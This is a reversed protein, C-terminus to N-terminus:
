RLRQQNRRDPSRDQLRFPVGGLEHRLTQILASGELELSHALDPSSNTRRLSSAYHHLVTARELPAAANNAHQLAIEFSARADQGASLAAALHSSSLLRSSGLRSAKEVAERAHMAAFGARGLAVNIRCLTVHAEIIDHVPHAHELSRSAFELAQQFDMQHFRLEAVALLIPAYELTDRMSDALALASEIHAAAGDLDGAVLSLRGLHRSALVQQPSQDMTAALRVAKRYHSGASAWNGVCQDVFGLAVEAEVIGPMHSAATRIELAQQYHTAAEAWQSRLVHTEGLIAHADAAWRENGEIELDLAQVLAEAARAHEGEAVWVRCLVHLSNVARLENASDRFLALSRGLHERAAEFRGGLYEQLGLASYANALTPKDGWKEAGAVALQYHDIAEQVQGLGTYGWGAVKHALLLPGTTSTAESEMRRGLDVVDRFRGQLYWALGILQQLTARVEVAEAGQAGAVEALGAECEAILEGFAGTHDLAFAIVKRARGRQLPDVSLALVQRYTSVAAPYLAVNAEAWGRGSLVELHVDQEALERHRELIDAAHRYHALSAPYASLEAARRGALRNYHLARARGAASDDGLTFHYALEAAYDDARPGRHRELSEAARTHLLKRRSPALEWYMADRLFAHGFSYGSLTERLVHAGIAQDLNELVRSEDMPELAALLAPYEFSQGLVSAMELTNRCDAALRQLRQAIVERVFGLTGAFETSGHWFGGLRRLRGSESLSLVLQEVFLPNGATASYLSEGLSDSVSGELLSTALRGIDSQGLEALEIRHLLRERQMAAWIHGMTQSAGAEDTRYTAVLVLPLRRTQRALYHFLQLTVDDAAHLDELCVLVTGHEALGRLCAHIAGFARTLDIPQFATGEELKLDLHYRLETIVHSLDEVTSGMAARIREPPQALLFDVLADHIPGLPMAGRDEYCGGALCLVGQEQAEHVLRGLLASKGTGAPSGILVAQAGGSGASSVLERLLRLEGDRGFLERPVPFPYSCRFSAAFLGFRELEEGASIQRQLDQLEASPEVRLENRLALALRQYTRLAESRRGHRALLLMAEQAAREESPEVGLLRNLARVAGDVDGQRELENSIRLQSEAWSQKLASRREAAWPQDIDDPLYHGAYVSSAEQLLPLPNASAAARELLAEFTDADVWLHNDDPLWVSQRDSLVTTPGAGDDQPEIARRLASLTSRLNAGAADLGSDPWLLDVLEDRTIRRHPRSVLIKLLQRASKRRWATDAVPKGDVEVRFGALTFVQVVPSLRTSYQRSAGSM